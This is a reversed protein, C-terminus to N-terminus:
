LVTSAEIERIDTRSDALHVSHGMLMIKRQGSKPTRHTQTVRSSPITGKAITGHARESHAQTGGASRVQVVRACPYLHNNCTTVRAGSICQMKSPASKYGYGSYMQTRSDASQGTTVLSVTLM